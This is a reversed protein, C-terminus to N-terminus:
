AIRYAGPGGNTSTPHVDSKLIYHMPITEKIEEYPAIVDPIMLLKSMKKIKVFGISQYFSQLENTCKLHVM